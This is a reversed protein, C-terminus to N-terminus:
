SSLAQDVLEDARQNAEHRIRRITFEDVDDVHTMVRDWLQLLTPDNVDYEGRVQRVVLESDGVAEISTCNMELALELGRILAHYEAKNNTGQGIQRADERIEDETRVICSIAM